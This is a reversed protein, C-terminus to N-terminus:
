LVRASFQRPHQIYYKKRSLTDSAVGLRQAYIQWYSRLPNREHRQLNFHDWDEDLLRTKLILLEKEISDANGITSCTQILQELRLICDGLLAYEDAELEFLREAASKDAHADVHTRM